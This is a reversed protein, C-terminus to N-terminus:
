QKSPNKASLCYIGLKRYQKSRNKPFLCYVGASEGGSGAFCGVGAISYPSILGGRVGGYTGNPM